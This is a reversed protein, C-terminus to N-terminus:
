TKPFTTNPRVSFLFITYGVNLLSLILFCFVWVASPDSFPGHFITKIKSFYTIKDQLDDTKFCSSTLGYFYINDNKIFKQIIKLWLRPLSIHLSVKLHNLILLWWSINSNKKRKPTHLIIIKRLKACNIIFCRTYYVIRHSNSVSTYCIVVCFHLKNWAEIGLCVRNNFIIIYGWKQIFVCILYMAYYYSNGCYDFWILRIM